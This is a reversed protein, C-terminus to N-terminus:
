KNKYWYYRSQDPCRNDKRWSSRSEQCSSNCKLERFRRQCKILCLHIYYMLETTGSKQVYDELAEQFRWNFIKKMFFNNRWYSVLTWEYAHDQIYQGYPITGNLSDPRIQLSRYKTLTFPGFSQFHVTKPWLPRDQFGFTSPEFSLSRVIQLISDSRDWPIFTSPGFTHFQVTKFFWLSCNLPM